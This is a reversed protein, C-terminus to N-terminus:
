VNSVHWLPFWSEISNGKQMGYNLYFQRQWHSNLVKYHGVWSRLFVYGGM